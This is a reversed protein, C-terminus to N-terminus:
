FFTRSENTFKQYVKARIIFFGYCVKVYFLSYFKGCIKWM